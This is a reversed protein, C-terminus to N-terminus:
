VPSSLSTMSPFVTSFTAVRLGQSVCLNPNPSTPTPSASSAPSTASSPKKRLRAVHKRGCTATYGTSWGRGAGKHGSGSHAGSGGRAGCRRHAKHARGGLSGSFDRLSAPDEPIRVRRSASGSAAGSQLEAAVLLAPGAGPPM